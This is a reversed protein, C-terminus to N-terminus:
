ITLDLTNWIRKMVNKQSLNLDHLFIVCDDNKSFAASTWNTSGLILTKEDVLCWKHHLLKGGQSVYTPIGAKTLAELTEKSSGKASYHDFAVEVTVGRKKADLLAQLIEKNTFTFMCIRLSKTATAIANIIKALAKKEPEPLSWLELTQGQVDFVYTDSLSSELFNCLGKHYCGLVLNDHLNLSTETLNASGLLVRKHDIVLIKKHMLGTSKLPFAVRPFHSALDKSGSPDYFIKVEIGQSIRAKLAEIIDPDTLGYIILFVSSKADKISHLFVLKLDDRCQNSYLTLPNKKSPLLPHTSAYAIWTFFSFFVVFSILPM